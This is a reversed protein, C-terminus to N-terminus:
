KALEGLNEPQLSEDDEAVTLYLGRMLVFLNHYAFESGPKAPAFEVGNRNMFCLLGVVHDADIKPDYGSQGSLPRIDGSKELQLIERDLEQLFRDGSYFHTFRNRQKVWQRVKQSSHFENTLKMLSAEMRQISEVSAQGSAESEKVVALRAAEFASRTTEFDEWRLIYPWLSITGDVTQSASFKFPGQALTIHSLLDDNLDLQRLAEESYRSTKPDFQYPLSSAAIRALMFNLASGNRINPGSLESHNKLRDWLRSNQWKQDNLYKMRAIQRVQDLELKKQEALTKREWYIRLEKKWNDLEKSYADAHLNRAHAFDVAADGQARILDAQAYIRSTVAYYPDYVAWRVRTPYRYVPDVVVVDQAMAGHAAVLCLLCVTITNKTM